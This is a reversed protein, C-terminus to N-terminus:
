LQKLFSNLYILSAVNKVVLFAGMKYTNRCVMALLICDLYVYMNFFFQIRSSIM